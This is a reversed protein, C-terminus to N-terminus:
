RGMAMGQPNGDGLALIAVACECHGLTKRQLVEARM